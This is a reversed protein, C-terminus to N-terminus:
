RTLKARNSAISTKPADNVITFGPVPEKEIHDHYMDMFVTVPDKDECKVNYGDLIHGYPGKGYSGIRFYKPAKGNECRLRNLYAREGPPGSCRVPNAQSGLDGSVKPEEKEKKPEQEQTAYNADANVSFPNISLLLALAISIVCATKMFSGGGNTANLNNSLGPRAITGIFSVREM